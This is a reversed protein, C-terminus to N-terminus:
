VMPRPLGLFALAQRKYVDLHTYSVAGFRSASLAFLMIGLVVTLIAAFLLYGTGTALGVAMAFFICCIDKSSGPVSRFRVLSFAGAVAVGTGLNGNVMMIVAQVLAPLLVLTVAFNKSFADTRIYILAIILGLALSTATCAMATPFTLGTTAFISTFM